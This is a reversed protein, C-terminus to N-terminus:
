TDLPLPERGDNADAIDAERDINCLDVPIAKEYDIACQSFAWLIHYMRRGLNPM